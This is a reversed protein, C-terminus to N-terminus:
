KAPKAPKAPKASLKALTEEKQLRVIMDPADFTFEFEERLVNIAKSLLDLFRDMAPRKRGGAGDQATEERRKLANGYDKMRSGIQQQLYTRRAAKEPKLAAVAAPSTIALLARDAASFGMAVAGKMAAYLEPSSTSGNGKIKPSKFDTSKHGAAVLADVVLFRSKASREVNAVDAAILDAVVKSLITNTM